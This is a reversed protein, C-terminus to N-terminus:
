PSVLESVSEQSHTASMDVLGLAEIALRYKSIPQPVPAFEALLRRFVTPLTYRYKLELIWRNDMLPAASGAETYSIAAVGQAGLERDLTLRCPGQESFGIRATRLYSIRCVPQLGRVLLRRHFWFSPRNKDPASSQMRKLEEINVLSRRKSVLAKTKTKRELFVHASDGYRRIRFKSRGYSGNRRYVDHHATDFYLSSVRYLDGAEGSGHTDAALHARAWLQIAVAQEPSVLFKNEYAFERRERVDLATITTNMLMETTIGGAHEHSLAVCCLM